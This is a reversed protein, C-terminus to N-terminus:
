RTAAAVAMMETLAYTERAGLLGFQVGLSGERSWRVVGPLNLPSRAPLCIRVVVADGFAAPFTSEVLMGGISLDSAVGPTLGEFESTSLEVPLRVASRAHARRGLADTTAPLLRQPAIHATM